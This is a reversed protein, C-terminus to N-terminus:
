QQYSVKLCRCRQLIWKCVQGDKFGCIKAPKPTTIKFFSYYYDTPIEVVSSNMALHLTLVIVFLVIVSKM